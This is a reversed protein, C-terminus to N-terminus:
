KNLINFLDVIGIEFSISHNIIIHCLSEEYKQLKFNLFNMDYLPRSFIFLLIQLSTVLSLIKKKSCIVM